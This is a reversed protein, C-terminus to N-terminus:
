RLDGSWATRDGVKIELLSDITGRCLGMHLGLFYSYGITVNKGKGM